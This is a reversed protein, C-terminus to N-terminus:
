RLQRPVTRFGRSKRRPPILVGPDIADFLAPDGFLHYIALLEPFAGTEADDERAALVADGLRLHEGSTLAERMAKHFLRQARTCAPESANKCRVPM